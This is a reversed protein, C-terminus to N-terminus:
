DPLQQLATRILEHQAATLITVIVPFDAGDASELAHLAQEKLSMLLM